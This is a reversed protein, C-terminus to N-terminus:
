RASCTEELDLYGTPVDSIKTSKVSCGKIPVLKPVTAKPGTWRIGFHARRYHPSVEITVNKGVEWGVVGREKAKAVLAQDKTQEWLMRHKSLVAPQIFEPDNRVVCLCTLVRAAQQVVSLNQLCEVSSDHDENMAKLANGSMEESFMTEALPVMTYTHVPGELGDLLKKEGIDCWIGVGRQNKVLIRGVLFSRLQGVEHGVAFRVLMAPPMKLLSEAIFNGPVQASAKSFAEVVSPWVNYYPRKSQHWILEVSPQIPPEKEPWITLLRRYTEDVTLPEFGRVRSAKRCLEFATEYEHFRM